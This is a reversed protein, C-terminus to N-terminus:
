RSKRVACCVASFATACALKLLGSCDRERRERRERERTVAHTRVCVHTTPRKKGDSNNAAVSDKCLELLPSDGWRKALKCALLSSLVCLGLLLPLLAMWAAFLAAAFRRRCRWCCCAKNGRGERISGVERCCASLTWMLCAFMRGAHGRM